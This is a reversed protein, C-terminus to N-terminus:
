FWRRVQACYDDYARGFRRRLYREEPLVAGFHLLLFWAPFVLLMALSNIWCGIMLFLLGQSLYLPNRTLAYPGTTVLAQAGLEPLMATGAARFTRHAGLALAASPLGVGLGLLLAVPWSALRQAWLLRAIGGALLTFAFMRPPFALLEPRDQNM